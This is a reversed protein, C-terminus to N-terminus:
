SCPIHLRHLAALAAAVGWKRVAFAYPARRYPPILADLAEVGMKSLVFMFFAARNPLPQTWFHYEM